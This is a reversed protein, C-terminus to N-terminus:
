PKLALKLLSLSHQCSRKFGSQLDSFGQWELRARDKVAAYISKPKLRPLAQSFSLGVSKWKTILSAVVIAGIGVGGMSEMVTSATESGHFAYVVLLSSLFCQVFFASRYFYEPFKSKRNMRTELHKAYTSIIVSWSGEMLWSGFVTAVLEKNEVGLMKAMVAYTGLYLWQMLYEKFWAESFSAKKNFDIKLLGRQSLYDKYLPSWFQFGWSLAAATTGLVLSDFVSSGKSLLVYGFTGGSVLSRAWIDPSSLKLHTKHPIRPDSKIATSVQAAVEMAAEALKAPDLDQIVLKSDAETKAWVFNPSGIPANLFFLWAFAFFIGRLRLGGLHELTISTIGAHRYFAPGV